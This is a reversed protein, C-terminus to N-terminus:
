SFDVPLVASIGDPLEAPVPPLPDSAWITNIAAQDLSRYGSSGVLWVRHIKGSRNITIGIRSIGHPRTPSGLDPYRSHPRIHALLVAQYDLGARAAAHRQAVATEPGQDAHISASAIHGDDAATVQSDDAPEFLGGDNSTQRKDSVEEVVASLSPSKAPTIEDSEQDLPDSLTVLVVPEGSESVPSRFDSSAEGGALIAALAASHIGISFATAAVNWRRFWPASRRTVRVSRM